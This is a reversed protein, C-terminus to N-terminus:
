GERVLFAAARARRDRLGRVVALQRGDRGPAWLAILVACAAVVVGLTLVTDHMASVFAARAADALQPGAPGLHDAM